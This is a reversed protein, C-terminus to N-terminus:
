SVEKIRGYRGARWHRKSDRRVVICSEARVVKGNTTVDLTGTENFRIQKELPRKEAIKRVYKRACCPRLDSVKQFRRVIKGYNIGFSASPADIRASTVVTEWCFNVKYRTMCFALM